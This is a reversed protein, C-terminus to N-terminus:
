WIFLLSSWFILQALFWHPKLPRLFNRSSYTRRDSCADEFPHWPLVVDV